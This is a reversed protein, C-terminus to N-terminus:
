GHITVPFAGGPFAAQSTTKYTPAPPGGADRAPGSEGAERPEPSGQVSLGQLPVIGEAPGGQVSGASRGLGAGGLPRYM